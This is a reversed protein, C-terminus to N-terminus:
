QAERDRGDEQAVFRKSAPAHYPQPQSKLEAEKFYALLAWVDHNHEAAIEEKAKWLENLVEDDM